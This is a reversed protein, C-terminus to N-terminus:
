PKPKPVPKIVPKTAPVAAPKAPAAATTRPAAAPATPAVPRKPFVGADHGNQTLYLKAARTGILLFRVLLVLIAVWILFAIFATISWGIGLLVGFLGDPRGDGYGWM